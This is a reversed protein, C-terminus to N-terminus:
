SKVADPLKRTVTVSTEAYTCSLWYGSASPEFDWAQAAGKGRSPALFVQKAPEGESLRVNVFPHASQDDVATWDAPSELAHQAVRLSPPCSPVDVAQAVGTGVSCAAVIAMIRLEIVPMPVRSM